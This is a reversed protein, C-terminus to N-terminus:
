MTVNYCMIPRKDLPAYAGRLIEGRGEDIGWL